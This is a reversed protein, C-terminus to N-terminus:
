SALAIFCFMAAALCVIVKSPVTAVSSTAGGTIDVTVGMDAATASADSNMSAVAARGQQLEQDM